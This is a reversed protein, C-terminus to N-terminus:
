NGVRVAAAYRGPVGLDWYTWTPRMRDWANGLLLACAGPMALFLHLEPPRLKRRLTRLEDRLQFIIAQAHPLGGLAERGPLPLRARIHYADPFARALFEDFDEAIDTALSVSVAWSRGAAGGVPAVPPHIELDRQQSPVAGSSWIGDRARAGVTFGATSPFHAGIAFWLPLRMPGDVEFHHIGAARLRKRAVALDATIQQSATVPDAFVRRERPDDGM